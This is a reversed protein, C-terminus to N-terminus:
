SGKNSDNNIRQSQISAELTDIRRSMDDMKAIIENTVTDFKATLDDLLDDIMAGLEVAPAESSAHTELHGDDTVRDQHPVSM